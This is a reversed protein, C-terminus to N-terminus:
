CGIGCSAVVMGDLDGGKRHTSAVRHLPKFRLQLSQASGASIVEFANPAEAEGEEIAEVLRSVSRDVSIGVEHL